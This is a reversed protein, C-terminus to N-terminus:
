WCAEESRAARTNASSSQGASRMAATWCQMRAWRKRSLESGGMVSSALDTYLSFYNVLLGGWLLPLTMNDPLLQTDVDIGTLAILTDARQLFWSQMGGVVQFLFTAGCGLVAAVLLQWPWSAGGRWPGAAGSRRAANELFVPRTAKIKRVEAHVARAPQKETAIVEPMDKQFSFNGIRRRSNADKLKDLDEACKPDM